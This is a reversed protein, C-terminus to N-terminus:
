PTQSLFDMYPLVKRPVGEQDARVPPDGPDPGLHLNVAVGGFHQRRCFEKRGSRGGDIPLAPEGSRLEVGTKQLVNVM